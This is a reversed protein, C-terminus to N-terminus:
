ARARMVHRAGLLLVVALATQLFTGPEPVAAVLLGTQGYGGINTKPDLLFRDRVVAYLTNPGQRVEAYGQFTHLRNLNRQEFGIQTGGLISPMMTGLATPTGNVFFSLANDATATLDFYGRGAESANFTTAYIATCDPHPGPAPPFLSDTTAARLGVWGAGAIGDAGHYWTSPIRFGPGRGSFVAAEYPVIEGAEPLAVVSWHPDVPVSPASPARLASAAAVMAEGTRHLGTILPAAAAAAASLAVFVALPGTGARMPPSFM